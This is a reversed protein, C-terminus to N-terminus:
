RVVYVFDGKTRGNHAECISDGISEASPRLKQWEPTYTTPTLHFICGNGADDAYVLRVVEASGQHNPVLIKGSRSRLREFGKPNITALLAPQYHEPVKAERLALPKQSGNEVVITTAALILTVTTAVASLMM